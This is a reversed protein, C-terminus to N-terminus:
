SSVAISRPKLDVALAFHEAALAYARHDERMELWGLLWWRRRAYRWRSSSMGTAIPPCADIDLAADGSVGDHRRPGSRTEWRQM